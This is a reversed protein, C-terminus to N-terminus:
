RFSTGFTGGHVQSFPLEAEPRPHKTEAPYGIAVMTEVMVGPPVKLFEAIYGQATQTQDHMRERIQIWCSGLGLSEAALQIM